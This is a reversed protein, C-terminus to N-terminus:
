VKVAACNKFLEWKFNGEGFLAAITLSIKKKNEQTLQLNSYTRSLRKVENIKLTEIDNRIRRIENALM